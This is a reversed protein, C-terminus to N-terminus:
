GSADAVTASMSKQKKHLRWLLVTRMSIPLAAQAFFVVMSWVM